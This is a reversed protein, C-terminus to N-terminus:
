WGWGWIDIDVAIDTMDGSTKPTTSVYISFDDSQVYLVTDDNATGDGIEIADDAMGAVRDIATAAASTGYTAVSSFRVSYPDVYATHTSVQIIAIKHVRRDWTINTMGTSVVNEYQYHTYGQTTVMPNEAFLPIASFILFAGICILKKM